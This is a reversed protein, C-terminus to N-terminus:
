FLRGYTRSRERQQELDSLMLDYVQESLLQLLLPDEMVKAALQSLTARDLQRDRSSITGKSEDGIGVSGAAYGAPTALDGIPELFPLREM